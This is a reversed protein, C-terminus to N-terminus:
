ASSARKRARARWRDLDLALCTAQRTVVFGLELLIAHLAGNAQVNSIKCPRPLADSALNNILALAAPRNAPNFQLDVIVAEDSGVHYAAWASGCSAFRLFRAANRLSSARQIWCLPQKRLGSTNQLFENLDIQRIATESIRKASRCEMEMAIQAVDFGLRKYIANPSDSSAEAYAKSFAERAVQDLYTTALKIGLGTGHFRPTVGWYYSYSEQGEPDVSNIVVGVPQQAMFGLYSHRYSFNWFSSLALFKAPDLRLEFSLDRSSENIVDVVNPIDATEILRIAFRM